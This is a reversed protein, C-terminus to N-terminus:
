QEGRGFMVVGEMTQIAGTVANKFTVEEGNSMGYILCQLMLGNIRKDVQESGWVKEVWNIDIEVHMFSILGLIKTPQRCGAIPVIPKDKSPISGVYHYALDVGPTVWLITGMVGGAKHIRQVVSALRPQDTVKVVKGGAIV